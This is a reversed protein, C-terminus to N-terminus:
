RQRAKRRQARDAKENRARIIRTLAGNLFEMEAMLRCDQDGLGGGTPLCTRNWGDPTREHTGFFWALSAEVDPTFM